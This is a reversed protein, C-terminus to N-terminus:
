SRNWIEFFEKSLPDPMPLNNEAVMKHNLQQAMEEPCFKYNQLLPTNEKINLFYNVMNFGNIAVHVVRKLM